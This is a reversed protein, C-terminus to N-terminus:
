DFRARARRSGQIPSQRDDHIGAQNRTIYLDGFKGRRFERGADCRVIVITSLVGEARSDALFQELLDAADSKHRM